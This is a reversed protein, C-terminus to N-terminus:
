IAGRKLMEMVAGEARGLEIAADVAASVLRLLWAPADFRGFNTYDYLLQRKLRAVADDHATM